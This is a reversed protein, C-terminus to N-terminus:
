GILSFQEAADGSTVALVANAQDIRREQLSKLAKRLCIDITRLPSAMRGQRKM